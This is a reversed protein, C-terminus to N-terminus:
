TAQSSSNTCDGHPVADRKCNEQRLLKRIGSQLPGMMRDQYVAVRLRMFTYFLIAITTMVPDAKWTGYGAFLMPPLLTMLDSCVSDWRGSALMQHLIGLEEETLGNDEM